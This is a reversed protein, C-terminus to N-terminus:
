LTRGAMNGTFIAQRINLPSACDGVSQVEIGLAKIEDELGTNPLMNYCEIVSDCAIVRETGIDTTITVSGEDVSKVEANNWIKVGNAYLYPRMYIGFWGSQGDDIDAKSGSNVMTVKKGCSLLYAALDVAQLSVGLIVVNEGLKKSGFAQEPDFVNDGSFRSERIGGTALIVADPAEAKVTEADVKTMLKLEVGAKDIQASFYTLLDDFREHNGKVGKAFNMLGGVKDASDYLTVKHGREAAVRAAELGAPGAGVVMVKKPTEAPLPDFGEPMKDTFAYFYAANTRCTDPYKGGTMRGDTCHMCHMCPRIDERRGEQMKKVLEPDVNLPRNIFVLDLDGRKIAENIYDPGVRLDLYAACGVPISVAEKIAKVMPLFSGFGSHSGDVVGDFHSTYDFMTGYGTIGNAGPAIHQVDPAWINMERGNVGARVQIWDAGAGELAKAIEKSEDITLFLENDGLDVDNEEVANILAGVAFDPGNVEKIKEIMRRFLRTRNEISQPGYEDERRNVRRTLHGNLADASAGKIEICDFGARKAREASVGVSEIFRDLEEVTAGNIKEDPVSPALGMYCMQFGVKGGAAHIRETIPRVRDLAAEVDAEDDIGNANCNDPLLMDRMVVGGPLINLALGNEAMRGYLENSIPHSDGNADGWPWSGAAKVVRNSIEMSGLKIPSFVEDLDGDFSDFNDDQPNLQAKAPVSIGLAKVTCENVGDRIAASCLTAGSVGDVGEAKGNAVIAECYKKLPNAFPTFYDSSSTRTVNYSVDTLATESFTCSVEVEAFPSKQISTYVGPTYVPNGEAFAAVDAGSNLLGGAVLAAAGSISGKLFDRRSINQM